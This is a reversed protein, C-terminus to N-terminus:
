TFTRTLWHVIPENQEGM